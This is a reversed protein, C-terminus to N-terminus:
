GGLLWGRLRSVLSESAAPQEYENVAQLFAANAARLALAVSIVNEGKIVTDSHLSRVEWRGWASLNWGVVAYFGSRRKRFLGSRSRKEFGEGARAIELLVMRDQNGITREFEELLSRCVDPVAGAAKYMASHLERDQFLRIEGAPRPFIELKGEIPIYRWEESM